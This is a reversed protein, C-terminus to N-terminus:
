SILCHSYCYLELLFFNVMFIVFGCAAHLSCLIFNKILFKLASFNPNCFFQFLFEM